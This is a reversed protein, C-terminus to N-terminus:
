NCHPFIFAQIQLSLSVSVTNMDFVQLLEGDCPSEEIVTYSASVLHHEPPAGGLVLLQSGLAHCTHSRTQAEGMPITVKTWRNRGTNNKHNVCGPFNLPNICTRLCRFYM